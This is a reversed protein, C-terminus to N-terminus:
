VHPSKNRLHPRDAAVFRVQISAFDLWREFFRGGFQSTGGFLAEGPGYVVVASLVAWLIGQSFVLAHADHSGKDTWRITTEPTPGRTETSVRCQGVFDFAVGVAFDELLARDQEAGRAVLNQAARGFALSFWCLVGWAAGLVM